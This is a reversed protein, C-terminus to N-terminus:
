CNHAVLDKDAHLTFVEQVLDESGIHQLALSAHLRWEKLEDLSIVSPLSCVSRAFNAGTATTKCGYKESIGEM